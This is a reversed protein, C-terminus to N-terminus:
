AMTILTYEVNATYYYTRPTPTLATTTVKCSDIDGTHYSESHRYSIYLSNSYTAGSSRPPNSLFLLNVDNASTALRSAVLFAYKPAQGLSHAIAMSNIAVRSSPTFRDVAVKTCGFTSPDMGENLTGLVGFINVGNRVNEPKLDSDGNITVKNLTRGSTPTVVLGSASPTVTKEEEPKSSGGGMNFIM